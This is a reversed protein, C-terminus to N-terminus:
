RRGRLSRKLDILSRRNQANNHENRIAFAFTMKYIQLKDLMLLEHRFNFLYM